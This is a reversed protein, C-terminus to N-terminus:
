DKVKAPRDRPLCMTMLTVLPILIHMVYGLNLHLSHFSSFKLFVFAMGSYAVAYHLWIRLCIDLLVPHLWKKLFSALRLKHFHKSQIELQSLAIFLVIYGPYTGHWLSSAIFTCVTAFTQPDGKPKSRDILRLM